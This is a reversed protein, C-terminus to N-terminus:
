RDAEVVQVQMGSVINELRNTVIRDGTQLGRLIIRDEERRLVEVEKIRIRDEEVLLVQRRGRLAGTPLVFVNSLTIGEIEAQVFLGVPLPTRGSRKRRNYPDKVEAVAYIQRTAEDIVGETRVIRGQWERAQGALQARLRVKPGQRDASLDSFLLPLDVYALQDDTLPLRVEARGVAYLHALTQGASVFQGVDVSKERVRGDFTARLETRELNLKAKALEAQAAELSARAEALHPERLALPSSEGQGLTEWEKRALDAEAEERLLTKRARAVKAKAEFIAFDHERRDISVLVEGKKFVGGAILASALKVVRGSVEPILDIEVRPRVTGHSTIDIRVSTPAVEMVEARPLVPPPAKRIVVPGNKAIVYAAAAGFVLILWPLLLRTWRKM